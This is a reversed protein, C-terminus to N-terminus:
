VEDECDSHDKALYDEENALVYEAPPELPTACPSESDDDALYDEENALVYDTLPEFSTACHDNRTQTEESLDEYSIRIDLDVDSPVSASQTEAKNDADNFGSEGDSTASVDGTGHLKGDENSGESLQRSRVPLSSRSSPSQFLPLPTLARVRDYNQDRQVRSSTHSPTPVATPRAPKPAQPLGSRETYLAPRGRRLTNYREIHICRSHHRHRSRRNGSRRAARDRPVGRMNLEHSGRMYRPPPISCEREKALQAAFEKFIALRVGRSVAKEEAEKRREESRM